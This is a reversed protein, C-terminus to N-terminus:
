IGGGGGDYDSISRSVSSACNSPGSSISGVDGSRSGGVSGSDDAVSGGMSQYRKFGASLRAQSATMASKEVSKEARDSSVGKRFLILLGM